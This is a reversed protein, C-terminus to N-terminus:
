HNANWFWAVCNELILFFRKNQWTFSNIWLMMDMLYILKALIEWMIYLFWSITEFLPIWGNWVLNRVFFPFVNNPILPQLNSILVFFSIKSKDMMLYCCRMKTWTKRLFHPVMKCLIDQRYNGLKSSAIDFTELILPVLITEVVFNRSFVLLIILNKGNLGAQPWCTLHFYLQFWFHTENTEPTSSPFKQWQHKPLASLYFTM